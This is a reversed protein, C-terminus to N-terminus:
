SRQDDVTAINRQCAHILWGLGAGFGVGYCVGWASMGIAGPRGGDAIFRMATDGGFYGLVQASIVVVLALLVSRPRGLVGIAILTFAAGGALAGLWEGARGGLAFWCACWLVAYATFAPIFFAACRRVRHPGSLLGPLLLLAAVLFTVLCAVYLGVEGVTRYFWGGSVIWPAFGAISVLTFRWIGALISRTASM